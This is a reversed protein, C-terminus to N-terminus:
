VAWLETGPPLYDGDILEDYLFIPAGTLPLTTM